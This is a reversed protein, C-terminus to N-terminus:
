HIWMLTLDRSSALSLLTRESYNSVYVCSLSPQHGSANWPQAATVVDPDGHGVHLLRM